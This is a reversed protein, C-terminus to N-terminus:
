RTPASVRQALQEFDEDSVGLYMYFHDYYHMELVQICDRYLNLDLLTLSSLSVPYKSGNYLSLMFAASHRSQHASSSAHAWLRRAAEVQERTPGSAEETKEDDM